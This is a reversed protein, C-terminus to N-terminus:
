LQARSLDKFSAITSDWLRDINANAGQFHRRTWSVTMWWARRRAESFEDNEPGLAHLSMNMAMVLAQGARYRMKMLNGRQTYEYICLILLALISELEVPVRPHFPQRDISPQEHTLAQSPETSSDILESDEEIMSTALHAYNQAYARRLLISNPNSPGRDNPHPVLALIASIALSLPSRPQYVLTIEDSIPETETGATELPHDPGQRTVRPPLVPFYNHVFDYYANLSLSPDATMDAM